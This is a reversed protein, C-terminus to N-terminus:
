ARMRSDFDAEREFTQYIYIKLNIKIITVFPDYASFELQIKAWPRVYQSETVRAREDIYLTGM